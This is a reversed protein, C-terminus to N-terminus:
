RFDSKKITSVILDLTDGNAVNLGAKLSQEIVTNPLLDNNLQYRIRGVTLGSKQIERKATELTKGFVSPVTVNAVPEGLSVTIEIVTSAKVFSNHAVSQDVVVKPLENPLYKYEREGLRLGISKLVEEANNESLGRLNPVQIEREGVSITLYIRRGKKVLRNPRPNQEVVYGFPLHADYKEGQKVVELEQMELLDKATEFRKAIVNPVALAEGHKTYWPLIIFDFLIFIGILVAATAGFLLLLRKPNFKFM